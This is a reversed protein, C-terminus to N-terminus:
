WNLAGNLTKNIIQGDTGSQGPNGNYYISNGEGAKGGRAGKNFVNLLIQNADTAKTITIDGGNGGNTGDGAKKLTAGKMSTKTNPGNSAEGGNAYVNIVTNQSFKFRNITKGSLVDIVEVKYIPLNSNKTTTKQIKLELSKGRGANKVTGGIMAQQALENVSKGNHNLTYTKFAYNLPLIKTATVAPTYKSAVTFKLEDNTIKSADEHIEIGDDVYTGDTTTVKFDDFSTKGGINSTSYVKGDPTTAKIGFKATSKMGIETPADVMVIELSKVTKGKLSNLEAEKKANETRVEAIKGKASAQNKFSDRIHNNVKEVENDYSSIGSKTLLYVITANNNVWEYYYIKDDIVSIRYDKFSFYVPNEPIDAVFKEKIVSQRSITVSELQTNGDFDKTNGVEITVPWPKSVEIFKVSKVNDINYNTETKYTKYSGNGFDAFLKNQNQANSGISLLLLFLTKIFLNKM